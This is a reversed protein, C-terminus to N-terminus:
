KATQVYISFTFKHIKESFLLTCILLSYLNNSDKHYTEIGYRVFKVAKALYMACCGCMVYLHIQMSNVPKGQGMPSPVDFSELEVSDAVQTNIVINCLFKMLAFLCRDHEPSCCVKTIQAMIDNYETM